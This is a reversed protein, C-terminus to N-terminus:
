FDAITKDKEVNVSNYLFENECDASTYLCDNVFFTAITKDKEAYVLAYVFFAKEFHPSLKARRLLRQFMCLCENEFIPQLKIREVYVWYVNECIPPLRILKLMCWCM